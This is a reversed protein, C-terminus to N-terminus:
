VKIQFKPRLFDSDLDSHPFRSTLTEIRPLEEKAGNKQHSVELMMLIGEFIMSGSKAGRVM